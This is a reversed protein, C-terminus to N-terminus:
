YPNTCAPTLDIASDSPIAPPSGPIDCFGDGDPDDDGSSVPLIDTNDCSSRPMLINDFDCGPLRCAGRELERAMRRPKINRVTGNSTCIQVRDIPVHAKAWVLHAGFMSFLIIGVIPISLVKNM